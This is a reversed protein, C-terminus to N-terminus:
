EEEKGLRGAMEEGKRWHQLDFMLGLVTNGAGMYDIEGKRRGKM